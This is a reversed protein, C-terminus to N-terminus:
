VALLSCGRMDSNDIRGLVEFQQDPLLRGIDDTAIFSCSYLNAFDIVNIVGAVPHNVLSFVKLPDDEERIVVQMWPPTQFIGDKIAYAQSLLETMGYESHINTLHFAQKLKQHVEHRLIEKKRGKMGGTEMVITHKLKFSHAEAFQLLAYTVGILLTKIEKNELETLKSGLKNYENLYFGNSEHRSIEMMKQVMYVLSSNKREIYSPLLGLICYDKIPGYVLEFSDIFSKEYISVDKICHKSNVSGTTGSSEFVCAPVFPTTAVYHTKFFSIPLFPIAEIDKVMAVECNLGDVFRKYLENNAYQFRFITLAKETFNIGPSFILRHPNFIM